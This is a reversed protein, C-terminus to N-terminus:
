MQFKGFTPGSKKPTKLADFLMEPLVRGTLNGFIVCNMHEFSAFRSFCAQRHSAQKGMSPENIHPAGIAAAGKCQFFYSDPSCSLEPFDPVDAIGEVIQTPTPPGGTPIEQIFIDEDFLHTALIHEYKDPTM